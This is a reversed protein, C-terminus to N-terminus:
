GLLGVGPLDDSRKGLDSIFRHIQFAIIDPQEIHPAHATGSIPVFESGAIANHIKKGTALKAVTDNEGWMVLTPILPVRQAPVESLVQTRMLRALAPASAKAASVMDDTLPDPDAQASDGDPLAVLWDLAERSAVMQRSVNGFVLNNVLPLQAILRAAPAAKSPLGGGNILILAPVRHPYQAAYLRAILGGTSTGVLVAQHVEAGEYISEMWDLMTDFTSKALPSSGGFGPLDPAIVHYDLALERIVARWHFVADGVNGHLLIVAGPNAEGAELYHIQNGKFTMDKEIM